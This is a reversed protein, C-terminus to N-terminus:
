PEGQFTFGLARSHEGLVGRVMDAFGQDTPWGDSDAAAQALEAIIENLSALNGAIDALSPSPVYASIASFDFGPSM